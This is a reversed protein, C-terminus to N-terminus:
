RWVCLGGALETLYRWPRGVQEESGGLDLSWIWAIARICSPSTSPEVVEAVHTISAKAQHLFSM